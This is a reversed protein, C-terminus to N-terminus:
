ELVIKPCIYDRYGKHVLNNIISNHHKEDTAIVFLADDDVNLEFLQYVKIGNFFKPHTDGSVVVGCISVRQQSLENAVDAAVMGAGYLIINRANKLKIVDENDFNVKRYDIGDFEINGVYEKRGNSNHKKESYVKRYLYTRYMTELYKKIYMDEQVSFECELLWYAYIYKMCIMWCEASKGQQAWSISDPRQRYVYLSQNLDAVRKAKACIMFYFLMDEHIIGEHFFIQNDKLFSNKIFQRVSEVKLCKDTQYKGFLEIGTFVGDYTKNISAERICGSEYDNLFSLNYFLVESETKRAQEYLTECTEPLIYDDADVFLLYEGAANRIGTNRAASLGKNEEHVLIKINKYKKEYETLIRDSNDESGDNICIVEFDDITQMAISDLCERLYKEVNYVPVIISVKCM